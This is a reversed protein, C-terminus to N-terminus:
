AGGHARITGIVYDSRDVLDSWTFRLVTWGLGVLRNQRTRDRQFRDPTHHYAWGDVEIALRRHPLAVDLVGVLEGGSWLDYNPIWGVIKARRM